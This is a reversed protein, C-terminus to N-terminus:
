KDKELPDGTFRGEDGGGGRCDFRDTSQVSGFKKTVLDTLEQIKVDLNGGGGWQKLDSTSFEKSTPRVWDVFWM